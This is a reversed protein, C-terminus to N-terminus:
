QIPIATKVIHLIALREGVTATTCWVNSLGHIGEMGDTALANRLQRAAPESLGYCGPESLRVAWMRLADEASAARVQSASTTGAFEMLVTFLLSNNVKDPM